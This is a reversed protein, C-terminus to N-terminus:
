ITYYSGPEDMSRSKLWRTFIYHYRGTSRLSRTSIPCFTLLQVQIPFTSLLTKLWEGKCDEEPTKSFQRIWKGDKSDTNYIRIPTSAKAKAIVDNTGQTPQRDFGSMPMEM